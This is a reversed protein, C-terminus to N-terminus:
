ELIDDSTYEEPQLGFRTKMWILISSMIVFFAIGSILFTFNINFCELMKSIILAIIAESLGNVFNNVASIKLRMEENAFNKTYASILTLYIPKLIYQIAYLIIVVSFKLWWNINLMSVIGIIIFTQIYTLAIFALAKNRFKSHVKSQLGASVGSIITLIALIASYYQPPIELDTLLVGRLTIASYVIGHFLLVYLMISQLRQSKFITRLTDKLESFYEKVKMRKEAESTLIDEENLEKFCTSMAVSIVTFALCIIMPLYDNIVYLYGTLFSAIGDLIYYNRTGIGEIKAFLKKSELDDKKTVSDFLLNSEVVNKIGFGLGMFFNSIIIMYINNSLILLLISCSLALNGVVLSKKNKYKKILFTCPIQLLILFIPYFADCFMVQSASFGKTQVLFVYIIAYYFLLDWAFTKYIPYLNVNKKKRTEM